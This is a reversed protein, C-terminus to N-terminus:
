LVFHLIEFIIGLVFIGALGYFLPNIKQSLKQSLFKKYLFIIILGEAGLMLAGTFGIIEIFERFGLLFLTLPLFSTVFWSFNPSLGFDYWFVKKLTLGLTIFSTFCCIIGFIFGLKLIGDGIKGVFGSLAEKSTGSGSTGLITFIFFLYTCVAIITGYLIVRRLQKRDGGLMEKIEPIIASGWLSFLIVGYPFTFFKLNVTKFNEINIFPFAKILFLFLIIFLVVLLSLEIQSISKIGRFILYSGAIFFLLTYLIESGGFFPSFFSKLFSGGIILYALLAGMLGLGIILLSVKKWRPSLYKGVYGPLRHIGQTGLAVEGFIFHTIIAIFAMALFYLLVIFFGAKSAVYPLSFIGVGIVTGTFVALSKIFNLKPM